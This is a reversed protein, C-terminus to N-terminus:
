LNKVNVDMGSKHYSHTIGNVTDRGVFIIYYSKYQSANALSNRISAAITKFENATSDPNGNPIKKSNVFSVTFSSDTADDHEWNEYEVSEFHYVNKLSDIAKGNDKFESPVSDKESVKAIPKGPEGCSATIILSTNILILRILIRM